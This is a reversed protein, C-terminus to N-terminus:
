VKATHAFVNDQISYMDSIILEGVKQSVRGASINRSAVLCNGAGERWEV